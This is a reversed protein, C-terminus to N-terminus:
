QRAHGAHQRRRPRAHLLDIVISIETRRIDVPPSGTRGPSAISCISCTSAASFSAPDLIAQTLEHTPSSRAGRTM